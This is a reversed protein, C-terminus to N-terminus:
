LQVEGSGRDIDAISHMATLDRFHKTDSSGRTQRDHNMNPATIEVARISFEKNAIDQGAGTGGPDLDSMRATAQRPSVAVVQSHQACEGIVDDSVIRRRPAHQQIQGVHRSRVLVGWVVAARTSCIRLIPM